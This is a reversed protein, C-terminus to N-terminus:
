GPRHGRHRVRDLLAPSWHDGYRHVLDPHRWDTGTVSGRCASTGCRCALVYAADDTLTGYDVTAEEGRALPRRTTLEDAGTWWLNPDCSHNGKGNLTDPPLVLNADVGVSVTDVFGTAPDAILAALEADDVLRGGFRSVVVGAALPERAFLGMGEIPSARVELAPHLWCDADPAKM